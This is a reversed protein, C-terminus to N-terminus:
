LSLDFRLLQVFGFRLVIGTEGKIKKYPGESPEPCAKLPPNDAVRLCSDLGGAQEGYVKPLRALGRGAQALAEAFALPCSGRAVDISGDFIGASGVPILL